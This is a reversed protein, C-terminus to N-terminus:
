NDKLVFSIRCPTSYTLNLGCFGVPEHMHSDFLFMPIKHFGRNLAEGLIKLKSLVSEVQTIILQSSGELKNRPIREVLLFRMM